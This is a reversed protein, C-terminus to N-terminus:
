FCGGVLGSTGFYTPFPMFTVGSKGGHHLM